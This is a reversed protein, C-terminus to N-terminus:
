RAPILPPVRAVGRPMLGQFMSEALANNELKRSVQQANHSICYGVQWACILPRSCGDSGTTILMRVFDDHLDLYSKEKTFNEQM